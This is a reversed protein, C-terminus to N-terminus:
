NMIICADYVSPLRLVNSISFGFFSTQLSFVCSCVFPNMCLGVIYSYVYLLLELTTENFGIVDDGCDWHCVAGVSLARMNAFWNFFGGGTYIYNHHRDVQFVLNTRTNGEIGKDDRDWVRARTVRVPASYSHWTNTTKLILVYMVQFLNQSYLM